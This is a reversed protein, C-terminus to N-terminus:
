AKRCDNLLAPCPGQLRHKKLVTHSMPLEHFCKPFQPKSGGGGLVGPSM